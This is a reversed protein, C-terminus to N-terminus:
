ALLQPHRRYEDTDLASHVARLLEETRFPKPLLPHEAAIPPTPATGEAYGSLFLIRLGVWIESLEDALAYGSKQPMVIDTILLDPRDIHPTTALIEDPAAFGRVEFGAAGLTRVVIARVLPNDEVVFIRHQGRPRVIRAPESARPLAASAARPLHVSFTTGAGLKSKATVFGGHQGLAGYVIALGLGTGKGRGKTTYFPEFVRVVQDDTMGEGTDIADIRVWDRPEDPHDPHSSRVNRAVFRLLGGGPMADHANVALNLLIQQLQAEDFTADWLDPLVETEIQIHEPLMRRLMRTSREFAAAVVIRESRAISKRSFALLQGTLSAATQAAEDIGLLFERAEESPNEDLLLCTNGCIVTLLNNFDHAVGGALRGLADMKQAQQLQQEAERLDTIDRGEPILLAVKGDWDLVPKLSFDVRHLSGNADTHTAEFRVFEGERARAIGERLQLQLELSHQWWVTDWFPKGLVDSESAGALELAARNAALMSGDPTLLGMFQFTQDFIARFKHESVEVKRTEEEVQKTLHAALVQQARVQDTINRVLILRANRDGIAHSVAELHREGLAPLRVSEEDPLELLRAARYSEISLDTLRQGIAREREDVGFLAAGARNMDVIVNQADVVIAADPIRDFVTDRAIPSLMLPLRRSVGWAVLLSSIGFFAFSTDRQGLVRLDGAVALLSGLCPLTIGALVPAARVVHVPHLRTLYRGLMGISFVAAGYTMLTLAYDVLGFAYELSDFPIGAAVHADQRLWGHVPSSTVLATLCVAITAYSPILWRPRRAETYDYAFALMAGYVMCMPLFQLGDLWVKASVGHASLEAAQGAIWLVEGALLWLFPVTARLSRDRLMRLAVLAPLTAAAAFWLLEPQWRMLPM